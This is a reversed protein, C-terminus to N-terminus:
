KVITVTGRLQKMEVNGNGKYKYNILYYYVGNPCMKGEYTGDWKLNKGTGNFIENGWRNYVYMTIDDINTCVPFFTDNLGNGNPTFANPIWIESNCEAIKIEDRVKCGGNSVIVTYTGPYNVNLSTLTSGDSWLYTYGSGANLVILDGPCMITDNGLYVVPKVVTNIAITDSNSCNGWNVEVWYNGADSVNISQTIAGTNWQYTGGAIGADLTIADGICITTDNGINVYLPSFTLNITDAGICGFSNTVKVWYNGTTTVNIQQTTAGTNWSYTSGANGANLTLVSGICLNTDNGLHIVPNPIVNITITDISECSGISVKVWYNGSTSVNIQQSTAGTNWLYTSGPYAANLVVYGGQCFSTDNGLNVIPPSSVTVNITDSGACGNSNTENVWYIGPTSVNIQQTTAGTNWLYTSGPNGANLTINNGTCIITDNGLNVYLPAVTIKISDLLRNCGTVTDTAFLKFYSTTIINNIPISLITDCFTVVSNGYPTGSPSNLLQYTIGPEPNILQLITNGNICVVTDQLHTKFIYQKLYLSKIERPCLERGYIRLDDLKGAFSQFSSNSMGLRLGYHQNYPIFSYTASNDLNGNIYLKAVGNKRTATLLYWHNLQLNINSIIQMYNGVGQGFVFGAKPITNVLGINLYYDISYGTNPAKFFILRGTLPQTVDGFDTAYFWASLTLEDSWIDYPVGVYQNNGNFYYAKSPVNFRDTTPIPGNLIGTYNHGSIDYTDNDFQYNALIGDNSANITDLIPIPNANIIVNITDTGTCGGSNTVKVSYTESTNVNIQQTTAGTSWLYTNGPNDANLTIMNNCLTLDNGLHVALSGVVVIQKCISTQTPLGEDVALTINYTGISNYSIAPPTQLTSSSISANICSPFCLRTFTNNSVNMIFSYLSDGVRFMESISHPFSLNGLNGLSVGTPTSSTIGNPFTLRVISNNAENTVFGYVQGCDKYIVISRPENITGNVTGLNVGTPINLLSNGFDLRSLSNSNRNVAFLYWLGNEQVPYLGVLGDLAGINGLNTATPANSLSNGFNLRIISSNNVNYNGVFSYWNGGEIFTFIPLAYNMLNGPNGIDTATPTNALSTGFSLRVITNNQRSVVLGYWNATLTDKKIQIGEIYMSLAGLSGLNTAIPTNILSNGFSLRTLTGNLINTIFVYYNNGDKAIASFVPQSVSGLNGMNLGIPNNSLNGSCFNWYYSSGGTTTNVINFQQNVCITDPITFGPVVQALINLRFLILCFIFLSHKKM